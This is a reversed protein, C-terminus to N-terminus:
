YTGFLTFETLSVTMEMEPTIISIERDKNLNGGLFNLLM